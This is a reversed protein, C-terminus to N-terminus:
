AHMYCVLVCLCVHLYVVLICLMVYIFRFIFLILCCYTSTSMIVVYRTTELDGRDLTLFRWSLTLARPPLLAYTGDSLRAIVTGPGSTQVISLPHPHALMCAQCYCALSLSLNLSLSFSSSPSFPLSFPPSFFFFFFCSSSPFM